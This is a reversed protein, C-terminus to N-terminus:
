LKKKNLFLSFFTSFDKFCFVNVLVTVVATCVLDLKESLVVCISIVSVLNLFLFTLLYCNVNPFLRYLLKIFYGWLIGSYVLYQSPEGYAGAAILNMATDDNTEYNIGGYIICLFFIFASIIGIELYKLYITYKKSDFIM